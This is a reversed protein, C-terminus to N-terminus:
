SNANAFDVMFEVLKEAGEIPMANYISARIGGQISHGKLFKLGNLSAKQVFKADLDATPTFFTANMESRNEPVVRNTYFNSQSLYDYIVKAKRANHEAMASVGGNSLLHKFVLGCIYWAFTPPTNVMSEKQVQAKYDWISPTFANAKGILDERVIVLTIGAAGINKQAGAYILGYQNVDIPRSLICSSMDAVLVAKGVQPPNFIQVGSITENPCYHVYDYDEAITSFDLDCISLQRNDEKLINIETIKGYKRAENVALQSWHGSTLYLAQNHLLNFPIGAFQGRAGGHLFLVKYNDPINMLSRLDRECEEVMAIFEKGRHSVEMVSVQLNQWNPLEQQVQKLVEAPLMAPGACFNFVQM